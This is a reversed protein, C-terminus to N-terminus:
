GRLPLPLQMQRGIGYRDLFGELSSPMEGWDIALRETIRMLSRRLFTAHGAEETNFAVVRVPNCYQDSLLDRIVSERDTRAEDTEAWAPALTM